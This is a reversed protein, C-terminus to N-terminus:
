EIQELLESAARVQILALLPASKWGVVQSYFDKIAAADPVTLDRWVISGIEPGKDSM